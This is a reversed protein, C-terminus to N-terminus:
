QPYTDEKFKLNYIEQVKEYLELCQTFKLKLELLTFVNIIELITKNKSTDGDILSILASFFKIMTQMYMNDIVSVQVKELEALYKKAGDIDMCTIKKELINFIILAIENRYRTLNQYRQLTKKTRDYVLDILEISYFSLSNAFLTIEYYGWSECNMLYEQLLEIEKTHEKTGLLDDILLLILSRFHLFKLNHTLKYENEVQEVILYLADVDQNYFAEVYKRTYDLDKNEEDNYIISFEELTINLYDLMKLFKEATTDSEGREFKVIAPRSLLNKYLVNSRVNKQLRLERILEGIKM